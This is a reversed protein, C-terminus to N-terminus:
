SHVLFFSRVSRVSRVAHINCTNLEFKLTNLQINLISDIRAFGEWSTLSFFSAFYEPLSGRIRLAWGLGPPLETDKWSGGWSLLFVGFSFALHCVTLDIM